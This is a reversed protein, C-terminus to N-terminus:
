GEVGVDGGIITEPRVQTYIQMLVRVDKHGTISAAEAVTLRRGFTSGEFLRSAGERRLDHWRLDEIGLRKTVRGWARTIQGDTLNWIRGDKPKPLRKLIDIALPSLPITRPTDTKTDPIDLYAGRVHEARMAVLEGRRMCTEIAFDMALPLQNPLGGRLAGLELLTPRRTRDSNVSLVKNVRLIERATNVPNAPLQIGWIAMATRCVVAATNMEHVVSQVQIPKGTRESPTKLRNLAYDVLVAPTLAAMTHHGLVRGLHRLRGRESNSRKRPTFEDEYRRCMEGFTTREAATRNVFTGLEIEDEVQLAWRQALVKTRFTRSKKINRRRVQAEWRGSATKRFTAMPAVTGGLAARHVGGFM